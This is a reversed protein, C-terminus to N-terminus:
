SDCRLCRPCWRDKGELAGHCQSCRLRIAPTIPLGNAIRQANLEQRHYEKAAKNTMGPACYDLINTATKRRQIPKKPRPTRAHIQRLEALVTVAERFGHSKLLLQRPYRAVSASYGAKLLAEQATFSKTELADLYWWGARLQQASIAYHKRRKIAM